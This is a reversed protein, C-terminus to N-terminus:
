PSVLILLFHEGAQWALLSCLCLTSCHSWIDTERHYCFRTRAQQTVGIGCLWEPKRYIQWCLVTQSATWSYFNSASLDVHHWVALSLSSPFIHSDSYANSDNFQRQSSFVFDNTGLAPACQGRSSCSAVACYRWKDKKNREKNLPFFTM